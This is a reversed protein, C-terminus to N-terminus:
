KKLVTIAANAKQAISSEPALTSARQYAEIAKDRRGKIQYINGLDLYAQAFEPEKQVAKEIQELAADTNGKALYTLGLGWLARAYAPEIDLAQRFYNEALKYDKKNYYAWGINYLPFHPTAYILNGTLAMLCAIAADWNNQLIYTSGLNNRAPAYDPKLALAKKFSVIALDIKGKAAYVMGLSNQIYPDEPDLAEAKLLEQLAATYQGQNIYVDGLNRQAEAQRKDVVAAPGSCGNIFSCIFVGLIFMLKVHRMIKKGKLRPLLPTPQLVRQTKTTM